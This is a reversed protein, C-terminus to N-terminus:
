QMTFTDSDKAVSCVSFDSWKKGCFHKLSIKTGSCSLLSTKLPLFIYQALIYIGVLEFKTVIAHFIINSVHDLLFIHKESVKSAYKNEKEM